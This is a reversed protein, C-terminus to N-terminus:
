LDAAFEERQILRARFFNDEPSAMDFFAAAEIVSFLPWIM